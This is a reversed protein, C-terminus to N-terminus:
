SEALVQDLTKIVTRNPATATVEGELDIAAPDMGTPEKAMAQGGIAM